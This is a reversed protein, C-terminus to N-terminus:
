GQHPITGATVVIREISNFLVKLYREAVSTESSPFGVNIVNVNMLIGEQLQLFVYSLKWAMYATDVPECDDPGLTEFV